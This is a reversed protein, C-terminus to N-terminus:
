GPSVAADSPLAPRHCQGDVMGSSDVSAFRPSSLVFEGHRFPRSAAERRLTVALSAHFRGGHEPM